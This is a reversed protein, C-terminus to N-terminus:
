GLLYRKIIVEGDQSNKWSLLLEEKPSSGMCIATTIKIIQNPQVIGFPFSDLILDWDGSEEKVNFDYASSKGVNKIEIKYSGSEGSPILECDFDAVQSEEAEKKEKQLLLDNLEDLTNNRKKDRILTFITFIVSLSISIISLLDSTQM